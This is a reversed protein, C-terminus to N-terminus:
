FIVEIRSDCRLLSLYKSHYETVDISAYFLVYYLVLERLTDNQLSIAYWRLDSHCLADCCLMIYTTGYPFAFCCLMQLMINCLVLLLFCSMKYCFANILWCFAIENLFSQLERGTLRKTSSLDELVPFSSPRRVVFSFTFDECMYVLKSVTKSFNM